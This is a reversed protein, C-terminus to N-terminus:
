DLTSSDFNGNINWVSGIGSSIIGSSLTVDGTYIDFTNPGFTAGAAGSVTLSTCTMDDLQTCVGASKDVDVNEIDSGNTTITQTGSGNFTFTGTGKTYSGTTFADITFDGSIGIDPNNSCDFSADDNTEFTLDAYAGTGAAFIITPTSVTGAYTVNSTSIFPTVTYSKNQEFTLRITTISITAGATVIFDHTTVVNARNELSNGSLTSSAGFTWGCKDRLSIGPNIHLTGDVTNPGTSFYPSESWVQTNAITLSAGVEIIVSGGSRIDENYTLSVGTKFTINFIQIAGSSSGVISTANATMEITSTSETINALTIGSLDFSGDCFWTGTSLNLQCSGGFNVDPCTVDFTNATFLGTYDDSGGTDASANYFRACVIDATSICADNSSTASLYVYEGES